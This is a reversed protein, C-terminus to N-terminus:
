LSYALQHLNKLSFDCPRIIHRGSREKRNILIIIEGHM